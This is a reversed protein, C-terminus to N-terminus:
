EGCEVTVSGVAERGVQRWGDGDRQEEVRWYDGESHPVDRTEFRLRRDPRATRTWTVVVGEDDCANSEARKAIGALQRLHSVPDTM